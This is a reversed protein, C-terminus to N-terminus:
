SFKGWIFFFFSLFNKLYKAQEELIKGSQKFPFKKSPLYKKLIPSFM